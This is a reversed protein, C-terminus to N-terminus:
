KKQYRIRPDLYAYLLDVLLNVIIFAASFILVLGQILPFDRTSVAQYALLGTGPWAFVAEVVVSGALLAAVVLLGIYTVVPILSNRLAHKWVVLRESVGKIRAMRIYDSDLVELMSSRTLRMVAALVFLGLCATPLVYHLPGGMGAIPLWGLGVSFVGILIIGLWFSPVSQGVLALTRAVGDLWSGRKVAALVGIPVGLVIGVLLVMSGLKITAPLRSLIIDIVPMRAHLTYGLDGHLVNNLFTLYQMPLPKDLGLYHSLIAYDEPTYNVGLMLMVPDGSLRTIVFVVVTLLLLAVLGQAIRSLIYRQV